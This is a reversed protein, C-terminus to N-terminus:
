CGLGRSVLNIINLLRAFKADRFLLHFLLVIPTCHVIEARGNDVWRWHPDSNNCQHHLRPLERIM